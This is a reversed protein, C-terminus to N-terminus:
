NTKNLRVRTPRNSLVRVVTKTM